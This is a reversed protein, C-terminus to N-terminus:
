RSVYHRYSATRRQGFAHQADHKQQFIRRSQREMARELRARERTTVRGDAKARYVMAQLKRQDRYLRAAEHRTLAGSRVGQDIRRELNAQRQNLPQAHRSQAFSTLPVALVLVALTTKLLNM